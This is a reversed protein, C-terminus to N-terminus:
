GTKSESDLAISARVHEGHSITEDKLEKELRLVRLQPVTIGHRHLMLRTFLNRLQKRGMETLKIIPFIGPSRLTNKSPIWLWGITAVLGTSTNWTLDFQWNSTKLLKLNRTCLPKSCAIDKEVNCWIM